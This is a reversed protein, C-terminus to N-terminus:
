GRSHRGYPEETVALAARDAAPDYGDVPAPEPIRDGVRDIMSPTVGSRTGAVIVLGALGIVATVATSAGSPYSSWDIINSQLITLIVTAVLVLSDKRRIFWGQGALEEALANKAQTRANTM